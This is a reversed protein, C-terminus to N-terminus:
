AANRFSRALPGAIGATQTTLTFQEVIMQKLLIHDISLYTARRGIVSGCAAGWPHHKAFDFCRKIFAHLKEALRPTPVAMNINEDDRCSLLGAIITRRNRSMEGQRKRGGLMPRIGVCAADDANIESAVAESKWPLVGSKVSECNRAPDDFCSAIELRLGEDFRTVCVAM